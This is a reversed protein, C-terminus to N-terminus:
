APSQTVLKTGVGFSAVNMKGPNAKSYSIFEALTKVPVLPNVELVLAGRSLAALLKACLQDQGALERAVRDGPAHRRPPYVSM